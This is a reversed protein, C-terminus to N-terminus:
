THKKTCVLFDSIIDTVTERVYLGFYERDILPTHDLCRTPWMVYSFRGWRWNKFTVIFSTRRSTKKLRPSPDGFRLIEWERLFPPCSTCYVLLSGRCCVGTYRTIEQGRIFVSFSHLLTMWKNGLWYRSWVSCVWKFNHVTFSHIYSPFTIIFLSFNKISFEEFLEM